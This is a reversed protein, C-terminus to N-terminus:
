ERLKLLKMDKDPEFILAGIFINDKLINKEVYLKNYKTVVQQLDKIMSSINEQYGQYKFDTFSEEDVNIVVKDEYMDISDRYQNVVTEYTSRMELYSSYSEIAPVVVPTLLIASLASFLVLGLLYDSFDNIVRDEIVDYIFFALIGLVILGVVIPLIM